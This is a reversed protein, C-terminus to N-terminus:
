QPMGSVSSGDGRERQREFVFVCICVCVCVCVCVCLCLASARISSFLISLLLQAYAWRSHCGRYVVVMVECVSACVRVYARVCARVCVCVCVCVCLLSLGPRILLTDFPTTSCLGM